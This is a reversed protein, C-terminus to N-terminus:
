VEDPDPEGASTLGSPDVLPAFDEHKWRTLSELELPDLFVEAGTALDRIRLRPGSETEHRSVEVMAFENQYIEGM